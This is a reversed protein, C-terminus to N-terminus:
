PDSGEIIKSLLKEAEEMTEKRYVVKITDWGLVGKITFMGARDLRFFPHTLHSLYKLTGFDGLHEIFAKGIESDLRYERILEGDFCDDSAVEGLIKM